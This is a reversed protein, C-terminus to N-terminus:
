VLLWGFQLLLLVFASMTAINVVKIVIGRSGSSVYVSAAHITITATALVERIFGLLSLACTCLLATSHRGFDIM